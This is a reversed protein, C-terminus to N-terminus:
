AALSKLMAMMGKFQDTKTAAYIAAIADAPHENDSTLVKRGGRNMTKWNIQPYISYAWDIMEGKTATKTGAGALKVESPTVEIFPKNICSLVGICIGYSAMARASQSGFPIEVAVIDADKIAKQLGRHLERARRLDDSNKRVQKKTDKDAKDPQILEISQVDITMSDHVIAHAIGINNLSIDVGTVKLYKRM